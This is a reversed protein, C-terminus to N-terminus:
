IREHSHTKSGSVQLLNLLDRTSSVQIARSTIVHASNSAHDLCIIKTQPLWDFLKPLSAQQCIGSDGSDLIIAEPSQLQLIQQIDPAESDVISVKAADGIEMLRCAIGRALLSHHLLVVIRQHGPPAKM